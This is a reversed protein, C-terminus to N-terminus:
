KSLKLQNAMKVITNQSLNDMWNSFEIADNCWKTSYSNKQTEMIDILVLASNSIITKEEEGLKFLLISKGLANQIYTLMYELDGDCHIESSFYVMFLKYINIDVNPDSPDIKKLSEGFAICAVMICYADFRKDFLSIKDQQGAIKKPVQVVFWTAIGSVVISVGSLIVAIWDIWRPQALADISNAISDIARLLESGM